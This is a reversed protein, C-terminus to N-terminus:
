TYLLTSDSCLCMTDRVTVTVQPSVCGTTRTCWVHANCRVVVGRMQRAFEQGAWENCVFRSGEHCREVDQQRRLARGRSPLIHTQPHVDHRWVSNLFVLNNICFRPSPTPTPFQQSSNLALPYTCNEFGAQRWWHWPHVFQWPCDMCVGEKPMYYTNVTCNSSIGWPCRILHGDPDELM